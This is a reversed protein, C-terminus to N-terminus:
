RRDRKVRWSFDNFKTPIGPISSLASYPEDDFLELPVWVKSLCFRRLVSEIFPLFEIAGLSFHGKM